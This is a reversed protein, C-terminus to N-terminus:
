QATQTQIEKLLDVSDSEAAIQNYLDACAQSLPAQDIDNMELGEDVMAQLAEDNAADFADWEWDIVEKMAEEIVAKAEDPLNEWKSESIIPTVTTFIHNTKAIYKTVEYFKNTYLQQASMEVGEVVGTQISTYVESLSIPTPSAGLSEFMGIYVTTEPSRMQVGKFSDLDKLQTKSTLMVRFGSNMYGLIRMNKTELLNGTLEEGVSGDLVEKVQASDKFLFPLDLVAFKPAVNSLYSTTGLMMDITGLELGELMDSENGLQAAPYVTVVIKGDSKEAVLNAFKNAAQDLVSDVALNHAFGLELSEGAYGSGAADTTNEESGSNGAQQEQAPGTDSEPAPKETKQNCATLALVLGASLLFSWIRKGKM